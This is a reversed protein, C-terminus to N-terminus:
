AFDMKKIGKRKLSKVFKKTRYNVAVNCEKGSEM